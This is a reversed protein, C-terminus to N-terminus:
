GYVREYSPLRNQIEDIEEATIGYLSGVLNDLNRENRLANRLADPACDIGGVDLLESVLAKVQRIDESEDLPPIPISNLEGASVQTNSNLHRFVFETLCSNLVGLLAVAVERDEVAIYNTHNESYISGGGIEQSDLLHAIIRRPQENASVRQTVIGVGSINPGVVSAMRKSLWEKGIRKKSPRFSYRQVNEAWVLRCAGEVQTSEAFHEFKDFQVKGTEAKLGLDNLTVGSTRMREFVSYELESTGVYVARDYEEGLLVRESKVSYYATPDNLDDPRWVSRTRVQYSDAISAPKALHLIICEQLVRAFTNHRDEILVVGSIQAQERVLKRLQRFYADTLFTRPNIFILQSGHRMLQLCRHIFLGYTNMRGYIGKAYIKRLLDDKIVVYPPNAIAVDFDAM